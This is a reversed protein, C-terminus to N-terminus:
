SASGGPARRFFACLSTLLSPGYCTRRAGDLRRASHSPPCPPPASPPPPLCIGNRPCRLCRQHSRCHELEKEWYAWDRVNAASCMLCISNPASTRARHAPPLQFAHVACSLTLFCLFRLFQACRPRPITVQPYASAIRLVICLPKIRMSQAPGSLTNSQCRSSARPGLLDEALARM